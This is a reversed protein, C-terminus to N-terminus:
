LYLSTDSNVKAYRAYSSRCYLVYASDMDIHSPYLIPLSSVINDGHIRWRRM